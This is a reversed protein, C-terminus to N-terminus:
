PMLQALDEGHQDGGKAVDREADNQFRRGEGQRKFKRRQQRRDDKKPVYDGLQAANQFVGAFQSRGQRFPELFHERM